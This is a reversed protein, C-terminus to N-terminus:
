WDVKSLKLAISTSPVTTIQTNKMGRRIAEATGQVQKVQTLHTCRRTHYSIRSDYILLSEQSRSVLMFRRRSSVSIHLLLPLNCRASKLPAPRSPAQKYRAFRASAIRFPASKRPLSRCPAFKLFALKYSASRFPAFRSPEFKPMDSKRQVHKSCAFRRRAFKFRAFRKPAFIAPAIRSQTSKSPDIRGSPVSNASSDFRSRNVSRSFGAKLDVRAATSAKSLPSIASCLCPLADM